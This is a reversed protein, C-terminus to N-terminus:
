FDLSAFVRSDYFNKKNLQLMKQYSVLCTPLPWQNIVDSLYNQVTTTRLSKEEQNENFTHLKFVFTSTFNFSPKDDNLVCSTQQEKNLYVFTFQSNRNLSLTYKCHEVTCIERKHQIMMMEVRMDKM